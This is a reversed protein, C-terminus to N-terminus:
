INVDYKSVLNIQINTPGKDRQGHEFRDYLGSVEGRARESQLAIKLQGQIKALDRIEALEQLHMSMSVLASEKVVTNLETIRAVVQPLAMLTRAKAGPNAVDAGFVSRYAAALNGGCEIVALAFSDQDLTLPPLAIEEPTNKEPSIDIIEVNQPVSKPQVEEM